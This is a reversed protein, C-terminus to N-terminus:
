RLHHWVLWGAFMGGGFLVAGIATWILALLWLPMRMDARQLVMQEEERRLAAAFDLRHVQETLRDAQDQRNMTTLAPGSGLSATKAHREQQATAVGSAAHGHRQWQRM